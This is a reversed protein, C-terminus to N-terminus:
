NLMYINEKGKHTADVDHQWPRGLFFIVFTWTLLMVLLRIEIINTL